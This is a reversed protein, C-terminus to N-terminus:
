RSLIAKAFYFLLPTYIKELQKHRPLIEVRDIHIGKMSHIRLTVNPFFM